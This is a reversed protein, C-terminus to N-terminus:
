IIKLVSFEFLNVPFIGAEIPKSEFSKQNSRASLWSVPVIGMEDPADGPSSRSILVFCKYTIDLLTLLKETEVV